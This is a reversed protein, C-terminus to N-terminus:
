ALEQTAGGAVPPWIALHDGDELTTHARAEPQVYVGNILVMHCMAEPIGLSHIVQAPTATESVTVTSENNIAGSPLYDSLSAYLKVQINM